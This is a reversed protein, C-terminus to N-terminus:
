PTPRDNGTPGAHEASTTRATHQRRQLGPHVGPPLGAHTSVLRLLRKLQTRDAEDLPALIEDEIANAEVEAAALLTRARDSLHIAHARRDAPHPRRQVLGREELEDVLGVMANRHVHLLDALEQQSRGDAAALHNLIGFHAPDLGLPALRTTFRRSVHHGIQSLLFVGRDDLRQNPM